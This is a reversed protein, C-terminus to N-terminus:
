GFRDNDFKKYHKHVFVQFYRLIRSNLSFQNTNRMQTIAKQKTMCVQHIHVRFYNFHIEIQNTFTINEHTHTFMYVVDGKPNTINILHKIVSPNEGTEIM